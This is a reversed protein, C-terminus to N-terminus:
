SVKGLAWTELAWWLVKCFWANWLLSLVSVVVSLVAFVALVIYM